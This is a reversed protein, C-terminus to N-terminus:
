RKSMWATVGMYAGVIGAQAVYFLGLLEALANVREVSVIDTFLALTFAGMFIMSTWAMKKQALSKEERLELETIYQARTLEDQTVEGDNNL